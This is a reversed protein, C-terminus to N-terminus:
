QGPYRSRPPYDFTTTLVEVVEISRADFELLDDNMMAVLTAGDGHLRLTLPCVIVEGAAVQVRVQYRNILAHVIEQMFPVDLEAYQVEFLRDAHSLVGNLLFDRDRIGSHFDALLMRSAAAFDENGTSQLMESALYVAAAYLELGASFLGFERPPRLRLYRVDGDVVELVM